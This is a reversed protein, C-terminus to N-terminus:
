YLDRTQKLYNRREICRNGGISHSSVIGTKRFVERFYEDRNNDMTIFKSRAKDTSDVLQRYIIRAIPHARSVFLQIGRVTFMKNLWNTKECDRKM